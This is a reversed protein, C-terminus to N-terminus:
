PHMFLGTFLRWVQFEFIVLQPICVTYQLVATTLWSLGYVATSLIFLCRTWFSTNAWMNKICDACGGGGGGAAASGGGGGGSLDSLGRM